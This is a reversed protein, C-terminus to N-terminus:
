QQGGARQPLPRGDKVVAAASDVESLLEGFARDLRSASDRIGAIKGKATNIGQSTRDKVLAARLERSAGLYPRFAERAQRSRALIRDFHQRLESERAQEQQRAAEDTSASIKQQWEDFYAAGRAEMADAKARARISVVEFKELARDFREVSKAAKDPSANEIGGLANNNAAAARRVEVIIKRYEALGSGARPPAGPNACGAAILGAACSLLATM